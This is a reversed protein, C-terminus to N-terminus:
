RAQELKISINGSIVVRNHECEQKPVYHSVTGPFIIILGTNPKINRGAGPFILPACKPCADVYYIFSWLSPWHAHPNTNDGTKYIVGWADTCYTEGTPYPHVEQKLTDIAFDIILKFYENKYMDWTTMDAKVNTEHNQQDGLDRIINTLLEKFGEAKPYVNTHVVMPETFLFRESNIM